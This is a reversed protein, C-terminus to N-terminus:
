IRGQRNAVFGSFSYFCFRTPFSILIVCLHLGRPRGQGRSVNQLGQGQGRLDLEQGQGRLRLDEFITM